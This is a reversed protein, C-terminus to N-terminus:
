KKRNDIDFQYERDSREVVLEEELEAVRRSLGLAMAAVLAVIARPDETFSDFALQRNGMALALRTLESPNELVETLHMAVLLELQQETFRPAEDLLVQVLFQVDRRAGM